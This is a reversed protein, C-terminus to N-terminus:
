RPVIFTSKESVLLGDGTRIEFRIPHAGPGASQAADHPVRVQVTFWRGQAPDVKFDANSM